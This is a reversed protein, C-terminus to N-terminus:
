RQYIFRLKESGYVRKYGNKDAFEVETMSMKKAHKYLTKKHMIWRSENVYWYDPRVKGDFSFNCAKYLAGDHNFTTDCYSIILNINKPLLKMCRSIFWSGFNKVQYKPHICFRSLERSAIHDYPLNQRILSSFACVSILKDDLYAGYIIGGRGCGSLYHYKDLLTNAERVDIEKVIVNNLEYDIVELETIGLWYKLLELVKDHCKFEHEWLTKLEYENAFNNAIYASKQNDKRIAKDITHWYDGQCEVLLTPKNNRPIVCDFNYPGIVTEPDNQKDKYERYYRVGMDDLIDYLYQQISSINFSQKSRHEAQIERYKDEKWKRKSAESLKKRVDETCRQKSKASAAEKKSHTWADRLKKAQQEQYDTPLDVNYKKCIRQVASISSNLSKAIDELSHSSRMSKIITVSELNDLPSSIKLKAADSHSRKMGLLNLLKGITRPPKNYVLGIEERTKGENFLTKVCEIQENSFQDKVSIPMLKKGYRIVNLYM